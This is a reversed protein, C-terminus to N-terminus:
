TRRKAKRVTQPKRRIVNGKAKNKAKKKKNAEAKKREAEKRQAETEVAQQARKNAMNQLEAKTFRDKAANVKDGIADSRQRAAGIGRTVKEARNFVDHAGTRNTPDLVVGITAIDRAAGATGMMSDIVPDIQAKLNAAFNLGQQTARALSEYVSSTVNHIAGTLGQWASAAGENEM